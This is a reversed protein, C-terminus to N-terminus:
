APYRLLTSRDGCRKVPSPRKEGTCVVSMNFMMGTNSGKREVKVDLASANTYTAETQAMSMGAYYVNWAIRLSCM